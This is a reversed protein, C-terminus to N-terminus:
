LHVATKAYSSGFAAIKQDKSDCNAVNVQKEAVPLYSLLGM